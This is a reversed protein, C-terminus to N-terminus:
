KGEAALIGETLWSALLERNRELVWRGQDQPNQINGLEVFVSPVTTERLIFLDRTSVDGKYVRGKQVEAYKTEITRRLSQAIGQGEKDGKRHYFFMDIRKGRSRSDIHMIIQRQKVVGNKKNKQHLANVIDVRQQLRQVQSRPIPVNGWVVEDKDPPLYEGGRIGDNPDRVVVYVTAGHSLLNRTFRLAVDYAYEDEALTKGLRRGVAGPDPGGHGTVMYYVYGRLKRDVLPVSAYKPGLIPYTGRLGLAKKPKPPLDQPPLTETELPRISKQAEEHPCSLFHYPVWLQKNGKRYDDSKLGGAHMAENYTQIKRARPLDYVNITSRISKSNYPYVLIPLRYIEKERLGKRKSQPNLRYFENLNCTTYCEFERLISIAGDGRKAIAQLYQQAHLPTAGGLFLVISLTLVFRM